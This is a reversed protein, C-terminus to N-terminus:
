DGWPGALVDQVAWPAYKDALTAFSDELYGHYETARTEVQGHDTNVVTVYAHPEVDTTGWLFTGQYKISFLAVRGGGPAVSRVMVLEPPYQADISRWQVVFLLLCGVFAFMLLAWILLTTGKITM